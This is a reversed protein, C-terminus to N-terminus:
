SSRAKKWAAWAPYLGRVMRTLEADVARTSALVREDVERELLASITGAKDDLEAASPPAELTGARTEACLHDLSLGINSPHISGDADVVMGTNFFPTPAWTFLNRLYLHSGESWAVRFRTAIGDLGERLAELQQPRWPLYYGPLLNFRRFGLGRLHDFNEVASHASAPPITMTLVVRPTRLLAPLLSIVHDYADRVGERAPRRFRRHDEPRGDMSITLILKDRRRALWGEDLGLGNTSLYVRSIAPEDETRDLVAEVVEPVLLPEGGFLKLDGGGGEVFLDIARNVQGISLSPWGEKATPCYSCRLDCRRTVTLVLSDGSGTAAM